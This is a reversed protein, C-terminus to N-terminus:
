PVASLLEKSTFENAGGSTAENSLMSAGSDEDFANEEPSRLM